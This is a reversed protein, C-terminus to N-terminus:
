GRNQPTTLYIAGKQVRTGDQGFIGFPARIQVVGGGVVRSCLKQKLTFWTNVLWPTREEFAQAWSLTRLTHLTSRLLHGKGLCIAYIFVQWPCTVGTKGETPLDFHPLFVGFLSTTEAGAKSMNKATITMVFEIKMPTSTAPARATPM